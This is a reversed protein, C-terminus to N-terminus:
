ILPLSQIKTDQQNKNSQTMQDGVYISETIIKILQKRMEPNKEIQKAIADVDMKIQKPDENSRGKQQQFGSFQQQFQPNDYYQQNDNLQQTYPVFKDYMIQEAAKPQSSEKVSRYPGNNGTNFTAIQQGYPTGRSISGLGNYSPLASYSFSSTPTSYDISGPAANKYFGPASSMSPYGYPTSARLSSYSPSDPISISSSYVPEYPADSLGVSKYQGSLQAVNIGPGYPIPFSSGTFGYSSGTEPECISHGNSVHQEYEDALHITAAHSMPQRVFHKTPTHYIPKNVIHKQYGHYSPGLGIHETFLPKHIVQQVESFVPKNVIEQVETIIPKHIVEQLETVVPKHIIQQAIGGQCPISSSYSTPIVSNSGCPESSGYSGSLGYYSGSLGNSGSYGYPYSGPRLGYSMLPYSSSVFGPSELPGFSRESPYASGASRYQENDLSEPYSSDTNHISTLQSSYASPNAQNITSDYSLRQKDDASQIEDTKSKNNDNLESSVQVIPPIKDNREVRHNSIVTENKTSLSTSLEGSKKAEDMPKAIAVACVLYFCLLFKM